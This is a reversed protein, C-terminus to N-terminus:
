ALLFMCPLNSGLLFTKLSFLFFPCFFPPPPPPPFGSLVHKTVMASVYNIEPLECLMESSCIGNHHTQRELLIEWKRPWRKINIDVTVIHLSPIHIKFIIHYGFCKNVKFVIQLKLQNAWSLFFITGKTEWFYKHNWKNLLLVTILVSHLHFFYLVFIIIQLITAILMILFLFSFLSLDWFYSTFGPSM